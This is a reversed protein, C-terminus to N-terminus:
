AKEGNKPECGVVRQVQAPSAGALDVQPNSPFMEVWARVPRRGNGGVGYRMLMACVSQAEAETHHDDTSVHEGKADTYVEAPWEVYSRWKTEPLIPMREGMPELTVPHLGLNRALAQRYPSYSRCIM